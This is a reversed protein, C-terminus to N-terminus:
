GARYRQFELFDDNWRSWCCPSDHEQDCEVLYRRKRLCHDRRNEGSCGEAASNSFRRQIVSWRLEGTNRDVVGCGFLLVIPKEDLTRWSVQKPNGASARTGMPRSM